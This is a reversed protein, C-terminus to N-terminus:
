DDPTLSAIDGQIVQGVKEELTMRKLLAQVRQELAPDPPLPWHPTPWISPTTTASPAAPASQPVAPTSAALLLSTMATMFVGAPTGMAGSRAWRATIGAAIDAM